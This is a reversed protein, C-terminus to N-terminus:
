KTLPFEHLNDLWEFNSEDIPFKLTREYYTVNDEHDILIITHTRTGYNPFNVFVQERKLERASNEDKLFM